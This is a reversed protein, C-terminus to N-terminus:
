PGTALGRSGAPSPGLTRSSEGTGGAGPPSGAPSGGFPIVPAATTATTPSLKTSDFVYSTTASSNVEKTLHVMHSLIAKFRAHESVAAIIAADTGDLKLTTDIPATACTSPTVGAFATIAERFPVLNAGERGKAASAVFDLTTGAGGGSVGTLKVMGFLVITKNARFQTLLKSIDTDYSVVPTYTTTAVANAANVDLYQEYIPYKSSDSGDSEAAADRTDVSGRRNYIERYTKRPERVINTYYQYKTVPVGSSAQAEGRLLAKMVSLDATIANGEANIMVNNRVKVAFTKLRAAFRIQDVATAGSQLSYEYDDVANMEEGTVTDRSLATNEDGALDAFITTSYNSPHQADDRTYALVIFLHSRSSDANLATARVVRIRDLTAAKVDMFQDTSKIELVAKDPLEFVGGAVPFTISGWTSDEWATLDDPTSDPRLLVRASQLYVDVFCAYIALNNNNKIMKEVAYMILGNSHPTKGTPDVYRLLTTTKGTGSAGAAIVFVGRNVGTTNSAAPPPLYKAMVESYISAPTITHDMFDNLTYPGTVSIPHTINPASLVTVLEAAKWFKRNTLKGPLADWNSNPNTFIDSSMPTLFEPASIPHNACSYVFRKGYANLKHATTERATTDVELYEDNMVINIPETSSLLEENSAAGYVIRYKDKCTALYAQLAKTTTNYGSKWDALNPTTVGKRTALQAHIKEHTSRYKLVIKGFVDPEYGSAPLLQPPKVEFVYKVSGVEAVVLIVIDDIHRYVSYNHTEATTRMGVYSRFTPVVGAGYSHSSAASMGALYMSNLTSDAHIAAFSLSARQVESQSPMAIYAADSIIERSSYYLKGIGILGGAVAAFDTGLQSFARRVEDCENQLMLRVRILESQRVRLAAAESSLGSAMLHQKTLDAITKRLGSEQASFTDAAATARATEADKAAELAGRASELTAIDTRIQRLEADSAAIEAARTSASDTSATEVARAHAEYSDVMKKLSEIKQTIQVILAAIAANHNSIVLNAADLRQSTNSLNEELKRIDENLKLVSQQTVTTTATAVALAQTRAALEKETEALTVRALDEMRKSDTANQQAVATAAQAADTLNTFDTKQASGLQKFSAEASALAAHFAAAQTTNAAILNASLTDREATTTAIARELTAIQQKLRAEASALQATTARETALVATIRAEAASSSAMISADFSSFTTPTVQGALSKLQAKIADLDTLVGRMDDVHSFLAKIRAVPLIAASGTPTPAAIAASSGTIAVPIPTPAVTSVVVAPSAAPSAASVAAPSATSGSQPASM